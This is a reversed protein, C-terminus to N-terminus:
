QHANSNFESNVGLGNIGYYKMLKQRVKLPTRSHATPMRRASSQLVSQYSDSSNIAISYAWPISMVSGVTVGNKAAADTLGATVRMLPATWNGHCNIYQWMSFNDGEFCYRPLSKWTSTPDDPPVWLLMKRGAPVNKQVRYDGDTIRALPRQRSIFFQDDIKSIGNAPNGSGM